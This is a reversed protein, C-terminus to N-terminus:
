HHLMERQPIGNFPGQPLAEKSPFGFSLNESHYAFHRTPPGKEKCPGQQFDQLPESAPVKSIFYFHIQTGTNYGSAM